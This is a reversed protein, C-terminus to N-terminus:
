HSPNILNGTPNNPSCVFVLKAASDPKLQTQLVVDNLNIQFKETLEMRILAVNNLRAQAAYMGFTPEFVIAKDRGPNCFIRFLLDIIEDSGNGTFICETDIKRISGIENKLRRHFPDPYRNFNGYPNENADLFVGEEGSFDDRASSYPALEKLHPRILKEIDVM